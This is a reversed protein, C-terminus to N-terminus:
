GRPILHARPLWMTLTRGEPLGHFHQRNAAKLRQLAERAWPYVPVDPNPRVRGLLNDSREVGTSDRAETNLLTFIAVSLEREDATAANVLVVNRADASSRRFFATPLGGEVLVLMVPVRHEAAAAPTFPSAQALAGGAIGLLAILAATTLLRRRMRM